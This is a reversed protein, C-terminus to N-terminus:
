FMTLRAAAAGREDVGAAEEDTLSLQDRLICGLSEMEAASPWTDSRWVQSRVFAKACHFYMEEVTVEIAAVPRRGYVAMTDFYAADAVIRASGNVRLTHTTGPVVFLTGVHPNGLINLLNDLRKNGDIYRTRQGTV